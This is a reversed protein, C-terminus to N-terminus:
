RISNEPRRVQQHTPTQTNTNSHLYHSHTISHVYLALADSPELALSSPVSSAMQVEGSSTLTTVALLPHMRSHHNTSWGKCLPSNPQVSLLPLLPIQSDFEFILDKSVKKECRRASVAASEDEFLVWLTLESYRKPDFTDARYVSLIVGYTRLLERVARDLHELDDDFDEKESKVRVLVANKHPLYSANEDPCCFLHKRLDNYRVQTRARLALKTNTNSHANSRYEMLSYCM